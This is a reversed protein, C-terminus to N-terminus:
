HNYKNLNKNINYLCGDCLTFNQIVTSDFRGEGFICSRDYGSHNYLFKAEESSPASGGYHDNTGYWHLIEHLIILTENPEDFINGYVALGYEKWSVGLPGSGHVYEIVYGDETTKKVQNVACFKHGTFVIKTSINTNPKDIRYAINYVNKHHYTNLNSWSNYSNECEDDSAHTCTESYAVGDLSHCLDGYTTTAEANDYEVLINFEKLMFEKITSMHSNIYNVYDPEFYRYAADAFIDIHLTNPYENIIWRNTYHGAYNSVIVNGYEDTTNTLVVDTEQIDEYYKSQIKYEGEGMYIIKWLQNDLIGGSPKSMTYVASSLSLSTPATLYQGPEFVSEMMYYGDYYSLQWAQNDSPDRDPLIIEGNGNELAKEGTVDLLCYTNQEDFIVDLTISHVVPECGPPAESASITVTGIEVATVRRAASVTAVNSNSSSWTISTSMDTKAANLWTSTGINITMDSMKRIDDVDYMVNGSSFIQWTQVESIGSDFIRVIINGETTFISSYEDLLTGLTLVLEPNAYSSIRVNNDNIYEIRWFINDEEFEDYALSEDYLQVNAYGNGEAFELDFGLVVDDFSSLSKIIYKGNGLYKFNFSQAASNSFSDQYVNSGEIASGEVASGNSATAYMGSLPSRINYIGYDIFHNNNDITYGLTIMPTASASEASDLVTVDDASTNFANIMFGYHHNYIYDSYDTGYMNNINDFFLWLDFSYRYQEIDEDYYPFREGSLPSVSPPSINTMGHWRSTTEYMNIPYNKYYDSAMVLNGDTITISQDNFDPWRTLRIYTTWEGIPSMGVYLTSTNEYYTFDSDGSLIYTDMFSTSYMEEELTPDILVPYVRDESNLWEASPTYTVTATNGTQTVTVAIDKSFGYASDKMWPADITFVTEGEATKFSVSGDSEATMLLGGTNVTMTYSTFDSKSRLIIDEEVKGHAVSYRLSVASNASGGYSIASAAKGIDTVTNKYVNEAEEADFAQNTEAAVKALSAQEAKAASLREATDNGNTVSAGASLKVPESGSNETFSIGWSVTYGGSTVSVLETASANAAFATTFKPNASVYKGTLSNYTLRNDVEKWEGDEEYHVAEPFIVAYREGSELVYHKSFEDRMSVDEYFTDTPEILQANDNAELDELPLGEGVVSLPMSVLLMVSALLMSLLKKTPKSVIRKKM